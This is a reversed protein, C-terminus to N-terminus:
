SEVSVVLSELIGIQFIPLYQSHDESFSINKFNSKINQATDGFFSFLDNSSVPM